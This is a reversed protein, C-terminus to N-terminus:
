VGKDVQSGKPDFKAIAQELEKKAELEERMKLDEQLIMIISRKGVEFFELCKPNDLEHIGLSFIGYIRRNKVLYAPLHSGIYEIKEVMRHSEYEAETWGEQAKFRDFRSRVLRELVRRLYVFAGIGEGHAALGIAKYLESWNDGKLVTKYRNRVENIAITHVSPYQGVKEIVMEDLRTWFRIVHGTNRTCVLQIEHFAYRKRVDRWDDGSPVHMRQKFTFTTERGCHPCHGDFNLLGPAAAPTRGTLHCLAVLEEDLAFRKYLPANLLFDSVSTLLPFDVMGLIIFCVTVNDGSLLVGRPWALFGM